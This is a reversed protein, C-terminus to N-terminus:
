AAISPVRSIPNATKAVVSLRKATKTGMPNMCPITPRNMDENPKVAENATATERSTEKVRVGISAALINFLFCSASSCM